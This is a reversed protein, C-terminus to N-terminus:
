KNNKEQNMFNDVVSQEGIQNNQYLNILTQFESDLVEIPEAIQNNFSPASSVMRKRKKSKYIFLIVVIIILVIIGGIGAYINTM